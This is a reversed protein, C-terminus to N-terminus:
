TRSLDLYRLLKLEEISSTLELLLNSSLDLVRIYKLSHFMKNLAQGLSKLYESPLLFTRLKNCKEIIQLTPNELDQCLLSVHRSKESFICSNNDKVHCCQPPSVSVALDHILDHMRYRVKDDINLIQFFSRMLLEDFYIGTEELSTQGSSQIFAEAMWLKVLEKYFFMPRQFCLAIHM